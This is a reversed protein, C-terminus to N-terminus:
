WGPHSYMETWRNKKVEIPSPRSGKRFRPDVAHLNGNAKDKRWVGHKGETKMVKKSIVQGKRTRPRITKKPNPSHAARQWNKLFCYSKKRKSGGSRKWEFNEAGRRDGWLLEIKRGTDAL